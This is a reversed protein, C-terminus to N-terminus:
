LIRKHRGVNYANQWNTSVKGVMMCSFEIIQLLCKGPLLASVNNKNKIEILYKGLYSFIEGAFKRKLFLSLTPIPSDCSHEQIEAEVVQTTFPTPSAIRVNRFLTM